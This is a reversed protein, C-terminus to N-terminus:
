YHFENKYWTDWYNLLRRGEIEKQVGEENSSFLLLHSRSGKHPFKYHTKKGKLKGLNQTVRLSTNEIQTGNAQIPVNEMQFM